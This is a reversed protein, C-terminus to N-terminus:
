RLSPLPFYAAGQPEAIAAYARFALSMTHKDDYEEPLRLYFAKLAELLEPAAAILRANVKSRVEDEVVEEGILCKSEAVCNGNADYICWSSTYDNYRHEWPSPSYAPSPSPSENM